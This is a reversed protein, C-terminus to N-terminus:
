MYYTFVPTVHPVTTPVLSPLSGCIKGLPSCGDEWNIDTCADVWFPVDTTCAEPNTLDNLWCCMKTNYPSPCPAIQASTDEAGDSFYCHQWFWIASPGGM